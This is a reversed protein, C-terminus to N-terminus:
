HLLNRPREEEVGQGEASEEAGADMRELLNDLRKVQVDAYAKWAALQAKLAADGCSLIPFSWVIKMNLLQTQEALDMHPTTPCSMFDNFGVFQDDDFPADGVVVSSRVLDGRIDFSCTRWAGALELPFRLFAGPIEDEVASGHDQLFQAITEKVGM